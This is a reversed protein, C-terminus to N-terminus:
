FLAQIAQMLLLGLFFGSISILIKIHWNEKSLLQKLRKKWRM